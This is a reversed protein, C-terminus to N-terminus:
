QSAAAEDANAGTAIRAVLAQFDRDGRLPRYWPNLWLSVMHSSRDHYAQELETMARQHDGLAADIAALYTPDVYRHQADAALRAAAFRAAATDGTHAQCIALQPSSASPKAHQQTYRDVCAQWHGFAGDVMAVTDGNYAFDPDIRDVRQALHMAGAQDDHAIAAYAEWRPFWPNLPDLKRAARLERRAAAADKGVRLLYLGLTAHAEALSPRLKVALELEHKAKAFDLDYSMAIYGLQLHGTALKPNLAVAKEAAGRMAPLVSRPARYVDALNIYARAMGAWAAAYNPDEAIAQNFLVLSQELSAEDTHWSLRTARLYLDHAQPDATGKFVLSGADIAGLKIKLAAVVATSITDELAFLNEMRENYQSTWLTDGTVADDLEVNIRLRNGARQVVGSLLNRAGLERGIAPALLTSGAFHFSSTRGIVELGPVRSLADLIEESIGQGLYSDGAGGGQVGFPLVAISHPNAPAVALSGTPASAAPASAVVEASAARSRSAPVLWWWVGGAILAVLVGAMGLAFGIRLSRRRTGHSAHLEDRPTQFAWAVVLAIPFGALVLVVIVRELWAPLDLVPFLIAVVQIVLWGAVAYTAAVRFVHHRQLEKLFGPRPMAFRGEGGASIFGGHPTM